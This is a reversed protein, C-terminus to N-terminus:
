LIEEAEKLKLSLKVTILAVLEWIATKISTLDSHHFRLTIEREDKNDIHYSERLIYYNSNLLHNDTDYFKIIRRDAM